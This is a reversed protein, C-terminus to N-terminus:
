RLRNKENPVNMAEDVIYHPRGKVEEYIGGIYVGLIGMVILQVGSFLLLLTVITTWGSPITNDRLYAFVTYLGLLVSLGAFGLGLFISMQLPKTSFSLIGSVALALMASVSYKSKGGVREAAVYEVGAQNFGVWSFLGRLFTSRERVETRLLAAVRSSILRFDASNRHIPVRSLYSMLRYYLTGITKRLIGTDPTDARVTYVVDNGLDYAALLQPIAEPPHQLDSDMMVIVDAEQAHDIGALLSMQHGFRSSLSIVQARSDRAAIDRLIQLTRDTSRDVVFLLRVDYRSALSDLVRMTRDYFQAIVQEENFVPTVVTLAKRSM